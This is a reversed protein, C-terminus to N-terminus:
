SGTITSGEIKTTGAAGKVELAANDITTRAKITTEGSVEMEGTITLKKCTINIPKDNAVIEIKDDNTLTIVINDSAQVEINGDKDIKIGAKATSNDEPKTVERQLFIAGDAAFRLHNITDDSVRHEFLIEDAKHLPPRNDAHYFYGTVVPQNIDGNVFQVLVLDGAKLPAAVGAHGVAVPVRALELGEYKLRLSVEYNHDDDAAEHPFIDTVVGLANERLCSLEQHVVERILDIMRSM